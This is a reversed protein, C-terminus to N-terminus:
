RIEPSRAWQPDQTREDWHGQREFLVHGLEAMSLGSQWAIWLYAQRTSVRGGAIADMQVPAIWRAKAEASLWSWMAAYDRPAGRAQASRFARQDALARHLKAFFVLAGKGQGRWADRSMAGSREMERSAALRERIRAPAVLEAERLAGPWRTSVDRLARKQSPGEAMSELEVLAAYKASMWGCLDPAHPAEWFNSITEKRTKPPASPM